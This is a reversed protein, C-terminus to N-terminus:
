VLLGSATYVSAPVVFPCVKGLNPYTNEEFVPPADKGPCESPLEFPSTDSHPTIDDYYELTGENPGQISQRFQWSAWSGSDVSEYFCEAGEMRCWRWTDM